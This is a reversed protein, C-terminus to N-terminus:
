EVIVTREFHASMGDTKINFLGERAIIKGKGMVFMPEIAAVIGPQFKFDINHKKNPIVPEEHLDFGVGHGSFSELTNFGFSEATEEISESLQKLTGKCMAIKTAIDLAKLTSYVLRFDDMSIDDIGGVIFTSAQDAYYGKYNVGVDIKLIQGKILHTNNPIGHIITDDVSMCTSFEFGKYGKFAPKANSKRIMREAISDLELTSIGPAILKSLNYLVREGIDVARRIYKIDRSSKLRVM